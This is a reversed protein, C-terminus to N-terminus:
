ESKKTRKKRPIKTKQKKKKSEKKKRTMSSLFALLPGEPPQVDFQSAIVDVLEPSLLSVFHEIGVFNM